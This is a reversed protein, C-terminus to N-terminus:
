RTFTGMLEAQALIHDEMAELVKRKGASPGLDLTIDLAYLRFFYRHTGRPPCPGGYDNRRWSNKGQVGGLEPSAGPPVAEPLGSLEVPLNFFVWHDWTGVPADPDDCILVLSAAGDPVGAWQLAPSVDAGKCSYKAPIAQGHEFATSAITMPDEAAARLIFGTLLICAAAGKSRM